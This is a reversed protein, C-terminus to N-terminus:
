TLGFHDCWKATELERKRVKRFSGNKNLDFSWFNWGLQMAKIYQHHCPNVFSLANWIIASNITVLLKKIKWTSSYFLRFSRIIIFIPYFTIHEPFPPKFSGGVNWNWNIIFTSHLFIGLTKTDKCYSQSYVQSM